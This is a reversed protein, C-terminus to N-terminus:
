NSYVAQKGLKTLKRWGIDKSLIVFEMIVNYNELITEKCRATYVKVENKLPLIQALNPGM